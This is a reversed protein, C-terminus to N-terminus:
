TTSTSRVRRVFLWWLLSNLALYGFLVGYTIAYGTMSGGYHVLPMNIVLLLPFGLALAVGNGLVQDQAVPTQYEPDTVRILALGSSITGTQEAYIGVMREMKHDDFVHRITFRISLYTILAGVTAMTVIPGLFTWAVGLSIGMIAATVLMDVSVGTIRNVFGDDIVYSINLRDMIFRVLLALLNATLFILSWLTTREKELGVAILAQDLLFTVGYALLYISGILAIHFTLTDIAGSFFTLTGGSTRNSADMVGSRESHSRSADRILETEGRRIGRNILYVGSLYAILFGIAALTLGISGAGAFGYVEWSDGISYAIGPNMGFGLPLLMGMAPIVDPNAFWLFAFAVTLGVLAQLLYTMVKIFGIQVAGVSRKGPLTRLGMAIFTIALLHYVYIGMRDISFDLWGILEPGFILGAFGAILNNPILFRQFFPVFRRLLTALVLLVSIIALDLVLEQASFAFQWAKMGCCFHRHSPRAM